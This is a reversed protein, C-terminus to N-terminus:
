TPTELSRTGIAPAEFIGKIMLKIKFQNCIGHVPMYISIHVGPGDLSTYTDVYM